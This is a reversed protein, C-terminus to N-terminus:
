FLHAFFSYGLLVWGAVLMLGGLPTLPILFKWKKGKHGSYTLGYISGSFLLVGLIFLRVIWNDLANAFGLNFALVLLLIAHLLQYRVGTEFSELREPAWKGKLRHAGFAGLIIGTAGFLVAFFQTLLITEM